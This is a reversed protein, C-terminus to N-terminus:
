DNGDDEQYLMKIIENIIKDETINGSKLLYDAATGNSAIIIYHDLLACRADSLAETASEITRYIGNISIGHTDFIPIPSNVESTYSSSIDDTCACFASGVAHYAASAAWYAAGVASEASHEDSCCANSTACCASSLLKYYTSSLLNHRVLGSYNSVELYKKAVDIAKRIRNDGPYEDEYLHLVLEASFIALKVLHIKSFLEYKQIVWLKDHISLKDLLLFEKVSGNFDEYHEIYNEFRDACPKLENLFEKNIVIDKIM